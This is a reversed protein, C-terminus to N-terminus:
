RESAITFRFGDPDRFRFMRVGWPTDVPETDIRGGAERLRRAIEDIDQPTTIQLSFGEGKVRDLGRAGDDQGLLIRVNGARLSVASLRGEREHERDVEFRLVDRYWAVSGRLDKVTLSASLERGHLLESAARPAPGADGPSDAAM